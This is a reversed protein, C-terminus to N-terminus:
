YDNENEGAALLQSGKCLSFQSCCPPFEIARQGSPPESAGGPQAASASRVMIAGMTSSCDLNHGNPSFTVWVADPSNAATLDLALSSCFALLLWFDCGKGSIQGECREQNPLSSFWTHAQVTQILIGSAAQSKRARDKSSSSGPRADQSM